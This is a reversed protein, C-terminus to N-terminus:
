RRLQPSLPQCPSLLPLSPPSHIFPALITIALFSLSPFSPSLPFRSPFLPTLRSLPSNRADKGRCTIDGRVAHGEVGPSGDTVPADYTTGQVKGTGAQRHELRAFFSAPTLIFTDTQSQSTRSAYPLFRSNSLRVTLVPLFPLSPFPVSLVGSSALFGV